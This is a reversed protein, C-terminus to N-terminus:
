ATPCFDPEGLLRSEVPQATLSHDFNSALGVAAGMFLVSHAGYLFTETFAIMLLGLFAVGWAFLEGAILRRLLVWFLACLLTLGFVGIERLFAVYSNHATIWIGDPSRVASQRYGIGFLQPALDDVTFKQIVRHALAGRDEVDTQVLEGVDISYTRTVAFIAGGLLCAIAFSAVAVRTRRSLLAGVMITALTGLIGAKSQTGILAAVMVLLALKRYISSHGTKTFFLLLVCVALMAALVSPAEFTAVARNIPLHWRAQTHNAYLYFPGTFVTVVGLIAALVGIWVLSNGLFSRGRQTHGIDYALLFGALFYTVWQGQLLLIIPRASVVMLLAGQLALYLCIVVVLLTPTQDLLPFPQAVIRALVYLLALIVAPSVKSGSKLMIAPAFCLVAWILLWMCRSLTQRESSEMINLEDGNLGSM